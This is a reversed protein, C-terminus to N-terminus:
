WGSGGGGGSGGGSSGGGGSGGSGRSPPTSTSAVAHSFDREMAGIDFRGSGHYWTPTASASLVDAFKASWQHALGLGVAYPLLREFLEPTREPPNLIDLRDEEATRMYLEFGAIRDILKQGAKTPAAMLFHFLAAIVGFAAGAAVIAPTLTELLGPLHVAFSAQIAVITAFMLFPLLKMLRRLVLRSGHLLDQVEFWLFGASYSALGALLAPVAWQILSLMNWREVFGLLLMTAAIGVAIGAATHLTNRQFSAGYHEDWLKSKLEARAKDMRQGNTQDTTLTLIEGTPFLQGYASAEGVSLGRGTQGLPEIQFERSRFLSSAPQDLIRVAGKVAMSLIAATLCRPDFGQRKVYRMAAPSLGAPPEFQPYIAGPPPDRGVRSWFSFLALAGILTGSLAALPGLRYGALTMPPDTYGDLGRAAYRVPPVEVLGPPWGVAVTFGEGRDLRATTRARYVGDAAALVEFADGRAGPRGTYAAHQVIPADGPLRIEVSAALIPFTWQDGTVNWYLEDYGAHARLQGETRYRIEYVQESPVPLFIDAQGIRLKAYAGARTESSPEAEGNRRVELVDFSTLSVRGGAESHQVPFDRIIGRRIENGEASVRITETVELAGDPLVEITVDFSRIEEAADATGALALAAAVALARLLARM